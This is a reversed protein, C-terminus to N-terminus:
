FLRQYRRAFHNIELAMFREKKSSKESAPESTASRGDKRAAEHAEM